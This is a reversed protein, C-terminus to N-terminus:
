PKVGEKGLAGIVLASIENALANPNSNPEYDDALKYIKRLTDRAKTYEACWEDRLKRAQEYDEFSIWKGAPQEQMMPIRLEDEIEDMPDFRKVDPTEAEAPSDNDTTM